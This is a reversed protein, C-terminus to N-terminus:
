SRENTSDSVHEWVQSSSEFETISSVSALPFLARRGRIYEAWDNAHFGELFPVGSISILKPREIVAYGDSWEESTPFTVLLVNTSFPSDSM